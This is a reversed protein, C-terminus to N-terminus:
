ATSRGLVSAVTSSVVDPSYGRRALFAYLRRRQVHTPLDALTAMRKRAVRLAVAVEDVAEDDFVEGIAEAAVDPAVDQRRLEQQIRRASAGRGRLRSRTVSRAHAADDLFGRSQLAAIAREVRAAEAGDRRLRRRMEAISCSRTALLRVARDYLACDADAESLVAADITAGVTLNLREIDDLSVIGGPQGDVLIALRGERRTDPIVATVVPM